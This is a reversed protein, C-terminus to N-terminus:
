PNEGEELLYATYNHHGVRQEEPPLRMYDGYCITLIEDYRAPVPFDQDEFRIYATEDFLERPFGGPKPLWVVCDVYASDSFSRKRAAKDLKAMLRPCGLLKAYGYLLFKLPTRWPATSSRRFSKQGAQFVLGNLVRSKRYLAKRERETKGYGDLPYIDVFLGLGYEAADQYDVYYRTDCFRCIPYIYEKNNRCSMVKFPTLEHSLLYALLKEYDERPMAIDIDDDWPIFGGHRVAGLLTGYFLFYRLHQEECIRALEKLVTLEGLQVQRETLEKM